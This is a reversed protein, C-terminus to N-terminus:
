HTPTRGFKLNWGTMSIGQTYTGSTLCDLVFKVKKGAAPTNAITVANSLASITEDYQIHSAATFTSSVATGLAQSLSDSSSFAVGSLQCISTQGDSPLSSSDILGVWNWYVTGGDWDGPPMWDFKLTQQVTHSFTRAIAPQTYEYVVTSATSWTNTASSTATFVASTSSARFYITEDVTTVIAAIPSNGAIGSTATFVPATGSSTPTFKFQYLKGITLGSITFTISPTGSAWVASTVNPPSTVTCTTWAAGGVCELALNGALTSGVTGQFRTAAAPAGLINDIGADITFSQYDYATSPARATDTPHVHDSRAWTTGSGYTASGDMSPTTTSALPISVDTLSTCAVPLGNSDSCIPKSATVWYWAPITGNMGMSFANTTLPVLGVINTGNYYLTYGKAMSIGAIDGLLASAAEYDTGASAVSVTAKGGAVTIKLLGSTLFGLNVENSLGSEAETTVYHADAPALGLLASNLYIRTRNNKSDFDMYGVETNDALYIKSTGTRSDYSFFGYYTTAGHAISASFRYGYMVSIALIFVLLLALIMKKM